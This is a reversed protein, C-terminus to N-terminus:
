KTVDDIIVKFSVRRNFIKDEDSLEPRLIQESGLAKTSFKNQDIGM